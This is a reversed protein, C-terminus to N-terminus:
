IMGCGHRLGQDERGLVLVFQVVFAEWHLALEQESFPFCKGAVQVYRTLPERGQAHFQVKRLSARSVSGARSSLVVEEVPGRGKRYNESHMPVWSREAGGM